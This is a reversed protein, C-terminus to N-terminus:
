HYGKRKGSLWDLHLKLLEDYSKAQEMENKIILYKNCKSCTIQGEDVFNSCINCEKWTNM